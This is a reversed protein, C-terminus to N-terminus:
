DNREGVAKWKSVEGALVVYVVLYLLVALLGGSAADAALAGLVSDFQVVVGVTAAFLVIVVFRGSLGINRFWRAIREGLSTNAGPGLAISFTLFGTAAAPWSIASRSVWDSGVEILLLVGVLLETWTPSREPFYASLKSRVASPM